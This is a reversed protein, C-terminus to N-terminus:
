LRLFSSFKCRLFFEILHLILGECVEVDVESDESIKEVIQPM